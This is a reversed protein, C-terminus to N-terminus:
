RADVLYIGRAWGEFGQLDKKAARAEMLFRERAEPQTSLQSPLFKLAVVRDLRTDHARYVTGMGGTGLIGVLRYHGVCHGIAPSAIAGALRAFFAEAPEAHALLSSLERELRSDGGCAEALFSVRAEPSMARAREYLGELRDPSTQEWPGAERESM